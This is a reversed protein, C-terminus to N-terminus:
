GGPDLNAGGKVNLSCQEAGADGGHRHGLKKAVACIAAYQSTYDPTPKAVMRVARAGLESWYNSPRVM